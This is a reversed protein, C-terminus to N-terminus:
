EEGGGAGDQHSGGVWQGPPGAMKSGWLILASPVRGGLLMQPFSIIDFMSKGISWTHQMQTVTKKKEWFQKQRELTEWM